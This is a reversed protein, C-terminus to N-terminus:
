VQSHSDGALVTDLWGVVSAIHVALHWKEVIAPRTKYM